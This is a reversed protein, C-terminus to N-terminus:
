TEQFVKPFKRQRVVEYFLVAAATAVNLSTVHGLLPLRVVMDCQKRLLPSLGKGEGGLILVLPVTFDAEFALTEGDGEAGIIWMGADKLTDVAQRLNSVRAVPVYEVAGASARAVASSLGASRRKPIIVGQVGCADALRLIAGLNQPDEVGDLMVLFAPDEKAKAASILDELEVYEKAAALAVIGQHSVGEALRNLAKREVKLVPIGRERALSQIEGLLSGTAGEAILIKHLPRGAKLAERVAQRGAIVEGM